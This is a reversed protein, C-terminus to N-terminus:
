IPHRGTPQSMMSLSERANIQNMALSAAVIGLVPGLVPGIFPVLIILYLVLGIGTCLGTFHRARRLSPRIPLGNLEHYNDILTFGLFFCQVIFLVPAKLISAGVMGLGMSIIISAIIESAYIVIAVKIMRIQANVFIKTSLDEKKGSLIESTRLAVHFILLEMVILVLYKYAGAFFFQYSDQFVHGVLGFAQIGIDLPSQVEVDVWWERITKLFRLGLLVSLVALSVAILKREAFGSWLRHKRIFAYGEFYSRLALFFDPLFNGLRDSLFEKKM